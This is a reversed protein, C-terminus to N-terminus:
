KWRRLKAKCCNPITMCLNAHHIVVGGLQIGLVGLTQCTMQPWSRQWTRVPEKFVYGMSTRGVKAIIDQKTAKLMKDYSPNEWYQTKCTDEKDTPKWKAKKLIKGGGDSNDQLQKGEGDQQNTFLQPLLLPPVGPWKIEGFEGIINNLNQLPNRLMAGEM